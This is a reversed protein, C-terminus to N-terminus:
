LPPVKDIDIKQKEINKMIEMIRRTYGGRQINKPLKNYEELLGKVQGCM